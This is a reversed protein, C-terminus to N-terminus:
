KRVNINVTLINAGIEISKVNQKAQNVNSAGQFLSSFQKIANKQLNAPLPLKGAHASHVTFQVTGPNTVEPKCVVVTYMPLQGFLSSKLVARVNGGALFEVSIHQAQKNGTASGPLGLAQNLAATAQESTFTVKPYKRNPTQIAKFRAEAQKAQTDDLEGKIVDKAPWFLGALLGAVAVLLVLTIVRQAIRAVKKAMPEPPDDFADPSLDDLNLKKGCGRCFIASVM